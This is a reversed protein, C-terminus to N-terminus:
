DESNVLSNYATQRPNNAPKTKEEMYALTPERDQGYTM